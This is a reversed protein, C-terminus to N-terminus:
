RKFWASAPRTFVCALAVIDLLWHIASVAAVIPVRRYVQLYFTRLPVSFLVVILMVVALTMIVLLVIRAWNRGRGIKSIFWASVALGVAQSLLFVLWSMTPYSLQQTVSGVAGTVVGVWLVAVAIKVERPRGAVDDLEPADAVAAQPPSYPNRELASM